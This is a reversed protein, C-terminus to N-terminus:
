DDMCERLVKDLREIARMRTITTGDTVPQRWGTSKIKGKQPLIRESPLGDM